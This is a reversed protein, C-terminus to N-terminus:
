QSVGKLVVDGDGTCNTQQSTVVELTWPGSAPSTGVLIVGFDPIETGKRMQKSMGLRQGLVRLAAQKPM